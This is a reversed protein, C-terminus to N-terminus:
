TPVHIDCVSHLWSCPCPGIVDHRMAHYVFAARIEKSFPGSTRMGLWSNDIACAARAPTIHPLNPDPFIRLSRSVREFVQLNILLLLM